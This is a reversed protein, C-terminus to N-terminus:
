IDVCSCLRAVKFTWVPVYCKVEQVRDWPMTTNYSIVFREDKSFTVLHSSVISVTPVM